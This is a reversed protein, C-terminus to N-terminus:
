AISHLWEILLTPLGPGSRGVLRDVREVAGQTARATDSYGRRSQPWSPPCDFRAAPTSRTITVTM